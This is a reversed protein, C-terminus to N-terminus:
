SPIPYCSNHNRSSMWSTCMVCLSAIAWLSAFHQSILFFVAHSLLSLRLFFHFVDDTGRPFLGFFFESSLELGSRRGDLKMEEWKRGDGGGGRETVFRNIYNLSLLFLNHM